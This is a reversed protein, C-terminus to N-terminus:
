KKGAQRCIEITEMSAEPRTFDILVDFQDTVAALDEVVKVGINAIGALEGADKGIAASEPRSVAASLETHDSLDAAKILCLGMRGSAGVIAVRIM